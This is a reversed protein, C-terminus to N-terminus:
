FMNELNRTNNTVNELLLNLHDMAHSVEEIMSLLEESNGANSQIHEYLADFVQNEVQSDQQLEAILESFQQIKQRSQVTSEILSEISVKAEAMKDKSTEIADIQQDTSEKNYQIEQQLDTLISSIKGTAEGSQEALKRVEDAVVAFGKGAEGARAAEISANLALLNTNDAIGKILHIIEGIQASSELLVHVREKNDNVERAINDIAAHLTEIGKVSLEASIKSKDSLKDLDNAEAAISQLTVAKREVIKEAEAVQEAQAQSNKATAQVATTVEKLTTATTLMAESYERQVSSVATTNEHVSQLITQYHTTVDNIADQIALLEAEKVVIETDQQDKGLSRLKNAFLALPQLIKQTAMSLILLLVITVIISSIIVTVISRNIADTTSALAESTYHVSEFYPAADISAYLVYRIENDFYVPAYIEAVNETITISGEEGTFISSITANNATDGKTFPSTAGETINETLVLNSSDFLHLSQLGYDQQFYNTLASEVTDVALASQIIGDGNARPIATFKFIEGTEVKMKMASPLIDAEGTLLMRYGEWIDFLSIGVAETETTTTFIGTNDTIYFDSMDTSQKLRELDQITLTSNTDMEKVILAANLMSADIEKELTVVQNAITETLRELTGTVQQQAQQELKTNTEQSQKGLNNKEVLLLAIITLVLLTAFVFFFSMLKSKISM